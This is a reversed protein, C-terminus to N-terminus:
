RRPQIVCFSCRRARTSTALLGNLPGTVTLPLSDGDVTAGLQRLARILPALPRQRLRPSGDIRTRGPLTAALATVFRAVTGADGADIRAELTPAGEGLGTVTVIGKPGGDVACGLAGIAGRMARVDEGPDGDGLDIASRGKALASLLLERNAVSKSAPVRM